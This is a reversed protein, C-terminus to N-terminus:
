AKQPNPLPSLNPFCCPIRLETVWQQFANPQRLDALRGHLSLRNRQHAAALLDLLRQGFARSLMRVPLFFRRPCNVWSAGDLSVGGGPVLCHLHCRDLMQYVSGAETGPAGENKECHEDTHYFLEKNITEQRRLPPTPCAFGNASRSDLL